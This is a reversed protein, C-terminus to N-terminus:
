DAGPGGHQQNWQAQANSYDQWSPIRSYWAPPTDYWDPKPAEQGVDTAPNGATPEPVGGWDLEAGAIQAAIAYRQKTNENLVNIAAQRSKLDKFKPDVMIALYDDMYQTSIEHTTQDFRAKNEATLRESEVSMRAELDIRNWEMDMDKLVKEQQFGQASLKASIDGQVEYLGKQIKGQQEQLGRQAYTNADQQAIPLASQIAAKEGATAAMTSNLLGRSNATQQADARASTIYPSNSSLLGGLRNEVLSNPDVAGDQAPTPDPAAAKAPSPPTFYVGDDKIQLQGKSWDQNAATTKVTKEDIPQQSKQPQSAGSLIGSATRVTKFPDDTSM